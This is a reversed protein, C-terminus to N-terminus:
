SRVQLVSNQATVLMFLSPPTEGESGICYTLWNQYRLTCFQLRICTWCGSFLLNPCEGGRRPCGAVGRKEVPLQRSNQLRISVIVECAFKALLSLQFKQIRSFHLFPLFACLFTTHRKVTLKRRFSM